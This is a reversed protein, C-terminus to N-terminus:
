SSPSPRNYRIFATRTGVRDYLMRGAYNFEQTTWYVNPAGEADAAAYVAEILARGVGRGRAEAATFLDQLYCVGEPYWMHPHFVYHVLGLVQGDAEALLARYDRQDGSLLRSFATDYFVQPLNPREYFAHYGEYLEQWRAKDAPRLARTSIGAM